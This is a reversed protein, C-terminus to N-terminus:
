SRTENFRHPRYCIEFANGSPDNFYVAYYGGSEDGPGEINLAGIDALRSALEDVRATSEAWFAIRNCNPKHESDETVGFFETAGPGVSEFQLWGELSVRQTFGVLPLFAEYFRTCSPLDRVRLDVHDFIRGM